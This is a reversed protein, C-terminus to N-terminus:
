QANIAYINLQNAFNVFVEYESLNQYFLISMRESSPIAPCLQQGENNFLYLENRQLERVAYLEKGNRFNYFEVELQGSNQFPIEFVQEGLMDYFAISSIDNRIVRYGTELVDSVMAYKSNTSPRFLQKNQTVKGELNVRILEGEQGIVAIETGAFNPGKLLAVDGSFRQDFKQPFGTYDEGRRNLLYIEGTNEVAVFADRGRVRVHFPTQVLSGELAKPSWGELPEVEKDFLSLNGRKDKTLYRYRKSNDYDILASGEINMPASYAKPFGEVTAGNRDILHVLSDTFFLYQLKKNNYYDVQHIPGLIQNDLQTKWLIEGQRSALYLSHGADQFIVEFSSNVHNRVVFPKTTLLTDAFVNAKVILDSAVNSTNANSTVIPRAENFNVMSSVLYNNNSANLQLQFRKLISTLAVNDNLFDKWKPKLNGLISESAYEFENFVTFDTEQIIDDLIRRKDISKGWTAENDFENMITKLADLNDSLLLSNQFIAFYPEGMGTQVGTLQEVFDAQQIYGLYTSLYFERYSTSDQINTKAESLKELARRLDVTDSTNVIFVESVDTFNMDLSVSLLEGKLLPKFEDMKIQIPEWSFDTSSNPILNKGFIMTENTGSVVPQNISGRVEIGENLFNIDLYAVANLEAVNSKLVEKFFVQRLESLRKTNLILELGASSKEKYSKDVLRSPETELARVVDEVLLNKESIALFEGQILMVLETGESKANLMEYGNFVQIETSFSEDTLTGLIGVISQENWEFGKSKVIYLPTIEESSTTHFSIWFPLETISSKLAGSEQLSDVKSSWSNLQNLFPITELTEFWDFARIGSLSSKLNNGHFVFLSTEPLFHEIKANSRKVVLFWYAAASSLLILLLSIYAKAKM